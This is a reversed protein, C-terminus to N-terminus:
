QITSDCFANMEIPLAPFVIKESFNGSVDKERHKM